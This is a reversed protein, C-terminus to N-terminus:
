RSTRKASRGALLAMFWLLTLLVATWVAAGNPSQIPMTWPIISKRSIAPVVGKGALTFIAINSAVLYYLSRSGFHSLVSCVVDSVKRLPTGSLLSLGKGSLVVVSTYATGLALWGWTPPFRGPMGDVIRWVIGAAACVAALIGVRLRITKDGKAFVMGALFFPMYHLVPFYSFQRGGIFIALPVSSVSDYPILMGAVLCVAGVALAWLPKEALRRFIPFLLMLLLAYGTFAILFESWGPIDKLQLIRRVVGVALPQNERLVRFAIGSVVFAGYSRLATNLMGPLAARWPKRLYALVATMGFYFVFTQFVTLNIADMFPGAAPFLSTDAFFQLVHCYVMLITLIGRGVDISRDRM